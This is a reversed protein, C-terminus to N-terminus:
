TTFAKIAMAEESIGRFLADLGGHHGTITVDWYRWVQQV